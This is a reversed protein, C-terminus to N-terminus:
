CYGTTEGELRRDREDAQEYYAQEANGAARALGVGADVLNKEAPLLSDYHLEYGLVATAVEFVIDVIKETQGAKWNAFEANAEEAKKWLEEIVEPTYEWKEESM